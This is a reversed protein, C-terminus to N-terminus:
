CSFIKALRAAIRAERLTRARQQAVSADAVGQGAAPTVVKVAVDRDLVLDRALWVSGMGGSSIRDVLRYRGGVVYGPTTM